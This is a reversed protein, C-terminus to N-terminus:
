RRTGDVTPQNVEGPATADQRNKAALVVFLALGIGRLTLDLLLADVSATVGVLGFLGFVSTSLLGPAMLLLSSLAFGSREVRDTGM